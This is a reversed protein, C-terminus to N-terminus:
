NEIQPIDFEIEPHDIMYQTTVVEDHYINNEDWYTVRWKHNANCRVTRGDEVEIEYLDDEGQWPINIVETEGCYPHLLKDGVRVDRMSKLTSDAMVVQENLDLAKGADKFFALESLAASIISLGLLAQVSSAIKIAVGSDFMLESDPDATTYYLKDVTSRKDYEARLEKMAEKRNVKEFYPSASMINLYPALLLERSKKISYSILVQALLTAPSLGFYKYPDRMLSVNVTIYLEILTSLFSKGWSIHPYLVLNRARQTPDMFQLFVDRIRPYITKATPGLYKESLFEEPTPPKDRFNIRWSDKILNAKEQETLGDRQVIFNLATKIANLDLNMGEFMKLAYPDGAALDKYLDAANNLDKPNNVLENSNM